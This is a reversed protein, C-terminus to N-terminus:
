AHTKGSLRLQGRLEGSRKAIEITMPLVQCNNELFNEFWIQIRTNPKSTLGYFIEEVTIASLVISFDGEAWKLVGSNPKLKVLESIINTDCLFIMSPM